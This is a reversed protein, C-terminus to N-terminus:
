TDLFVGEQSPPIETFVQISCSIAVAAFLTGLGSFWLLLSGTTGLMCEFCCPTTCFHPLSTMSIHVSIHIQSQGRLLTPAQFPGLFLVSPM